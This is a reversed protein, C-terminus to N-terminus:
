EGEADVRAMSQFPTNFMLHNGKHQQHSIYDVCFSAFFSLLSPFRPVHTSM